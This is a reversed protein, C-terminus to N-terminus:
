ACGGGFVPCGDEVEAVNFMVPALKTSLEIAGAAYANVHIMTMNV